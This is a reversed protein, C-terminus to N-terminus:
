KDPSLRLLRPTAAARPSFNSVPTPAPMKVQCGQFVPFVIVQLGVFCVLDHCTWMEGVGENVLGIVALAVAARYAAVTQAFEPVPVAFFGGCVVDAPHGITAAV